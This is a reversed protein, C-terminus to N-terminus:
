MSGREVHMYLGSIVANKGYNKFANEVSVDYQYIGEDTM